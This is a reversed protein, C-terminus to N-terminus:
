CCINALHPSFTPICVQYLWKPSCEPLVWHLSFYMHQPGSTPICGLSIIVGTSMYLSRWQPMVTISFLLSRFDIVLHFPCMVYPQNMHSFVFFCYFPCNRYILISLDSVINCPFFCAAFTCYAMYSCSLMKKSVSHSPSLCYLSSKGSINGLPQPFSFPVLSPTLPYKLKMQYAM